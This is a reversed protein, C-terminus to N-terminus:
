SLFATNSDKLLHPLQVKSFYLFQGLICLQSHHLQSVLGPRDSRLALAEGSFRNRIGPGSKHGNFGCHWRLIPRYHNRKSPTVSEQKKMHRIIRSQIRSVTFSINSLSQIRNHEELTHQNKTKLKASSVSWVRTETRTPLLQFKLETRKIKALSKPTKGTCTYQLILWLNPHLKYM